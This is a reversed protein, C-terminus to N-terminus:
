GLLATCGLLLLFVAVLGLTLKVALGIGWAFADGHGSVGRRSWFTEPHPPEIYYYVPEEYHWVTERREQHFWVWEEGDPLELPQPTETM